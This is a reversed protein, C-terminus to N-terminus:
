VLRPVIDDDVVPAVRVDVGDTEVKRAALERRPQDREDRRPAVDDLYGIVEREGVAHRDGLVARRQDNGLRVPVAEGGVVDAPVAAEAVPPYPRLRGAVVRVSDAHVGLAGGPVGVYGVLVTNPHALATLHQGRGVQIAAGEGAREAAPLVRVQEDDSLVPALGFRPLRAAPDHRERRRRWPGPSRSWGM